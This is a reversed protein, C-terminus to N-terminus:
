VLSNCHCSLKRLRYLNITKEDKESRAETLLYSSNMQCKIKALKVEQVDEAFCCTLEEPNVTIYVVCSYLLHLPYSVREGCVRGDVLFNAALGLM